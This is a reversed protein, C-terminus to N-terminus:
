SGGKGEGDRADAALAQAILRRIAEARSPLDPQKRRWDDIPPWFDEDIRLLYHGTYRAM